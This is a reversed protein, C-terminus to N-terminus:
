LHRYINPSHSFRIVAIINGHDRYLIGGVGMECVVKLKFYPSPKYEFIWNTKVSHGWLCTSSVIDQSSSDLPVAAVNALSNERLRCISGLSSHCSIVHMMLSSLPRLSSQTTRFHEEPPIFVRIVINALSYFSM